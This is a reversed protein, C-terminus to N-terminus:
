TRSRSRVPSNVASTGTDAVPWNRNKAPGPLHVSRVRAGREAVTSRGTTLRSRRGDGVDLDVDGLDGDAGSTTWLRAGADELAPAREDPDRGTTSVIVPARPLLIHQSLAHLRRRHHQEHQDDGADDDHEQRADVACAAGDFPGDASALSSMSEAALPGPRRRHADRGALAIEDHADRGAAAGGGAPRLELEGVFRPREKWWIRTGCISSPLPTLAADGLTRAMTKASAM